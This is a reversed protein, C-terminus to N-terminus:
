YEIVEIILRKVWQVVIITGILICSDLVSLGLRVMVDGITFYQLLVAIINHLKM